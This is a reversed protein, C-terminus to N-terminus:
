IPLGELLRDITVDGNTAVNNIAQNLHYEQGGDRCTISIVIDYRGTEVIPRIRVETYAEEYYARYLTNLAETIMRSFEGDSLDGYRLINPFSQVAFLTSQSVESVCFMKYLEVMGQPPDNIFGAGGLTPIPKM